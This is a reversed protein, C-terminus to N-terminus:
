PKMGSIVAGGNLIANHRTKLIGFVKKTDFSADVLGQVVVKLVEDLPGPGVVKPVISRLGKPDVFSGCHCSSIYITGTFITKHHIVKHHFLITALFYGENSPSASVPHM